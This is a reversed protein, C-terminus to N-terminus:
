KIEKLEYKSLITVINTYDFMRVPVRYEIKLKAFEDVQVDFTMRTVCSRLAAPIGFAEVLAAIEPSNGNLFESM